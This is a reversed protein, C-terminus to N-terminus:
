RNRLVHNIRSIRHGRVPQHPLNFLPSWLYATTFYPVARSIIRCPQQKNSLLNGGCWTRTPDALWRWSSFVHKVHTHPLEPNIRSISRPRWAHERREVSSLHPLFPLFRCPIPLSSVASTLATQVQFWYVHTTIVKLLSSMFRTNSGIRSTTVQHVPSVSGERDEKVGSLTQNRSNLQATGDRMQGIM